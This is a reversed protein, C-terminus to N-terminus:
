SVRLLVKLSGQQADRLIGQPKKSNRSIERLNRPTVQDGSSELRKLRITMHNEYLAYERGPKFFCVKSLLSKMYHVM